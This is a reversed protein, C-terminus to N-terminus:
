DLPLIVRTKSWPLILCFNNPIQPPFLSPPTIIVEIPRYPGQIMWIKLKRPLKPGVTKPPPPPNSVSHPKASSFSPPQRISLHHPHQSPDNPLPPSEDGHSRYNSIRTRFLILTYFKYSSWRKIFDVERRIEFRLQLRKVVATKLDQHKREISIANLGKLGWWKM